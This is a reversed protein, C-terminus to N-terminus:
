DRSSCSRRASIWTINTGYGRRATPPDVALIAVVERYERRVTLLVCCSHGRHAPKGGKVGVVHVQSEAAKAGWGVQVCVFVRREGRELGRLCREWGTTRTPEWVAM